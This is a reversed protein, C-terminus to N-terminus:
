GSLWRSRRWPYILFRWFSNKVVHNRDVSVIYSFLNLICIINDNNTIFCCVCGGLFLQHKYVPICSWNRFWFAIHPINIVDHVRTLPAPGNQHIQQAWSPSTKFPSSLELPTTMVRRKVSLTSLTYLCTAYIVSCSSGNEYGRGAIDHIFHRCHRQIHQNDTLGSQQTIATLIIILIAIYFFFRNTTFGALTPTM